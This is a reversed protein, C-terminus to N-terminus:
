EAFKELFKEIFTTENRGFWKIERNRGFWTLQRKAYRRTNRKILEVAEDLSIDGDFYRFLESYGVTKLSKYERLPYLKEAESELGADMMADTRANIAAYLEDRPSTIGIKVVDFARERSRGTRLESYPRGSSMCVELARMVRRPNSKDVTEYYAPDLERLRALLPEPGEDNLIASLSDRLRSDAPPLDDLGNCLADIYLGSGGVLLVCRHKTFLGELLRLALAAYQGCSFDETPDIMGIFYHEAAALQEASPQATGVAMGRYVQRSDASVIPLGYRCALRVAADTKGAGTPGCIVALTRDTNTTM